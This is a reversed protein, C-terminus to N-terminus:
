PPQWALDTLPKNGRRGGRGEGERRKGKGKKRGRRGERERERERERTSRFKRKLPKGGGRRGGRGRPETRGGEKSRTLYKSKEGTGM